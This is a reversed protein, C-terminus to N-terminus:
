STKSWEFKLEGMKEIINRFHREMFVNRPRRIDRRGRFDDYFLSIPRQFRYPCQRQVRKQWEDDTSIGAVCPLSACSVNVDTLYLVSVLALTHNEIWSATIYAELCCFHQRPRVEVNQHRV